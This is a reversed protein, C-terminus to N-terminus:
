DGKGPDPEFGPPTWKRIRDQAKDSLTVEGDPNRFIADAHGALEGKKCGKFGDAWESDGAQAMAALIAKKPIRSWFVAASLRAEALPPAIREVAAEMEISRATEISLQNTLTAAVCFALVEQKDNDSIESFAQWCQHVTREPDIALWPEHRRTLAEELDALKAEGPNNEAFEADGSRPIPHTATRSVSLGELAKRDYGLPSGLLARGMQFVLLDMAVPPSNALEAKIISTRIHKLDDALAQSYGAQKRAEAEPNSAQTRTRPPVTGNGTEVPRGNGANGNAGLDAVAQAADADAARILGAEARLSGDRSVYLMVGSAAKQEPTFDTRQEIADTIEEHQRELRDYEDEDADDYPEHLTAMKEEIAELRAAEEPTPEPEPAHFRGFGSLANYDYERMPEVWKWGAQRQVEAAAENLKTTALKKLLQPCDIFLGAEDSEAFLDRTVTGGAAEYAELGVFQVAASGGHLKDETLMSRISHPNLRYHGSVTRYCALQEDPDPSVTFAMLAELTLQEDRYAQLLEPHVTALRLRKEVTVPAVGFREAIQEVTQGAAHLQEFAVVQDAPHMDARVVNEALSIEAVEEHEGMILCPVPYTTDIKGKAALRQCAQLRRGGAVVGYSDDAEPDGTLRVQLNQRVGHADISAELQEDEESTAPTTRVNQDSLYLKRLPIPEIHSVTM